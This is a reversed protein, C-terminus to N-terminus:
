SFRQHSSVYQVHILLVEWSAYFRAHISFCSCVSNALFCDKGEKLLASHDEPRSWSPETSPQRQTGDRFYRVLFSRWRRRGLKTGHRRGARGYPGLLRLTDTATLWFSSKPLFRNTGLRRLFNLVVKPARFESVGCIGSAVKSLKMCFQIKTSLSTTCICTLSTFRLLIRISQIKTSDSDILLRRLVQAPLSRTIWIRTTSHNTDLSKFPTM